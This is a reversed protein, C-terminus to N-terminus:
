NNLLHNTLETINNALYTNKCKSLEEYGGFGCLLGIGDIGCIEAGNLDFKRDGVMVCSSKPADGVYELVKNILEDKSHDKDNLDSGVILDFYHSIGLYDLVTEAMFQVKSTAVFLRAGNNKLKELMDPVNDYLKNEALGDKQFRNRYIEVAKVTDEDSLNWVHVLSHYLPPGMMYKIKSEDNEEIGFQKLTYILSNKIADYSNVLTGDVDFIINSYKM